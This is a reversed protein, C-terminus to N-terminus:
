GRGFGNPRRDAGARRGRKTKHHFDFSGTGNTTEKTLTGLAAGDRARARQVPEADDPALPDMRM